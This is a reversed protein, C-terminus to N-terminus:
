FCLNDISWYISAIITDRYISTSFKITDWFWHREKQPVNVEDDTDTESEVNELRKKVYFAFGLYESRLDDFDIWHEEEGLEPIIIHAHKKHLDCGTLICVSNDKLLLIAPMVLPSMSDLDKRVLSSILGARAAARSFESKARDITFLDPTSKGNEVPLGAILSEASFPQKFLKTVIVLAELLANFKIIDGSQNVKVGKINKLPNTQNTLDM